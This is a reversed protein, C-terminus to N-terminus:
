PHSVKCAKARARGLTASLRVIERDQNAVCARTQALERQLERHDTLESRTDVLECRLRDREKRISQLEMRKAGQVSIEVDPIDAQLAHPIRPTHLRRVPTLRSPCGITMSRRSELSCGMSVTGLSVKWLSSETPTIMTPLDFCWLEHRIEEDRLGLLIALRSHITAFQNPAVIDRNLMPRQILAAYEEVTPALETGQFSFVARHTDWFSIATRLLTWDIPSDALLPLDGIILRLFAHDVPRFTRWLRMINASPTVIVGLRLYPHSRDMRVLYTGLSTSLSYPGSHPSGDPGADRAKPDCPKPTDVKRHPHTISVRSFSDGSIM